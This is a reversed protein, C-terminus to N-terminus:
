GVVGSRKKRYWEFTQVAGGSALIILLILFVYRLRYLTGVNLVVLGLSIMGVAAVLALLWVSFWQPGRTSRRKSWLGIIALAEILYMAFTEAGSLLRGASGVQGGTAFWMNPFPAFFGIMAARPLYRVIDAMSNLHVDSDINSSSDPYQIVFQQRMKGVRVAFRSWSNSPQAPLKEAATRVDRSSANDQGTIAVASPLEKPKKFKPIVRTVGVSLVILLAMGVINPLQLHKQRFQRLILMAAALAVTAIMLAGMSDRGLWIFVAILGGGAGTLLARSWSYNGSLLRLNVFVFALMGVIFLPDKLLQTTHLLFSPWLAVTTAAILGARRSFTEQGLQFVLILIALYCLANLPEASLITAGVWPGLLAFCISYLKLHFPSRAFFWERFQGYGLLQSLGAAEERLKIGDSAVSIAIGNTDFAGPLIARRGILYVSMTVLLHFIAAVVLLRRPNSGIRTWTVKAASLANTTRTM